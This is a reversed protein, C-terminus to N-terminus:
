QICRHYINCSFDSRTSLIKSLIEKEGNYVPLIVSIKPKMRRLGRTILMIKIIELFCLMNIPKYRQLHTSIFELFRQRHLAYWSPIVGTWIFHLRGSHDPRRWKIFILADPLARHYDFLLVGSLRSKKLISDICKRWTMNEHTGTYLLLIGPMIWNNFKLAIKPACWTVDSDLGHSGAIVEADKM